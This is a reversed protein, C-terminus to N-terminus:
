SGVERVTRGRGLLHRERAIELVAELREAEAAAVAHGFATLGYFRRRPENGSGRRGDTVPREEIWGRELLRKVATYLTGTGLRVSGGTRERVDVIIGYGHKDGGALAVLIQFVYPTLPLSAEINKDNLLM